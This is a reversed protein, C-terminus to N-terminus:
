RLGRTKRWVAEYTRRALTSELANNPAIEHAYLLGVLTWLPIAVRTSEMWNDFLAQILFLLLGGFCTFSLQGGLRDGISAYARLRRWSYSIAMWYASLYLVLGIPGVEAALSTFSSMVSAATTGGQIAGREIPSIYKHAVDTGYRAGRQAVLLAGVVETEARPESAFTMYARSSFTAPGSGVLAAQPMDGYMVVVNRAAQVKGSEVIPSTDEFLDFVQLLKLGPFATAVVLLTIVSVASVVTTLMVRSSMRAPSMWLTFLIVLTFFIMMARYQAAYFLGFVVVTALAVASGRWRQRSEGGVIEGGLVYLLWLGIFYTFQYANFGFTGSVYDPNGTAIFKPLDYLLGVTIQVVGLWFFTKLVLQIGERRLGAQITVIACILPACFNFVFMAVPLLEVRTSNVLASALSVLIFLYLVVGLRSGSSRYGSRIFALISCFAATITLPVDVYQAIRPVLGLNESLFRICVILALGVSVGVAWARGAGTRDATATYSEVAAVRSSGARM